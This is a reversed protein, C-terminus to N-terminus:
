QPAGMVTTTERLRRQIRKLLQDLRLAEWGPLQWLLDLKSLDEFGAVRGTEKENEDLELLLAALPDSELPEPIVASGATEEAWLCFRDAEPSWTATARVTEM